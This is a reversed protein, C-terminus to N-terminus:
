GTWIIASIFGSWILGLDTGCDRFASGVGQVGTRRQIVLRVLVHHGGLSPLFHKLSLFVM